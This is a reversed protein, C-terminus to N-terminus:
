LDLSRRTSLSKFQVWNDDSDTPQKSFCENQHSYFFFLCKKGDKAGRATQASWRGGGSGGLRDATIHADRTDKCGLPWASVRSRRSSGAADSWGCATCSGSGPGRWWRWWRCWRRWWSCRASCDAGPSAGARQRATPLSVRKSYKWVFVGSSNQEQVKLKTNSM